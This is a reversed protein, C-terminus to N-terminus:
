LTWSSELLFWSALRGLERPCPGVGGDERKTARSASRASTDHARPRWWHVPSHASRVAPLPIMPGLGGGSQSGGGGGGTVNNVASLGALVLVGSKGLHRWSVVTRRSEV